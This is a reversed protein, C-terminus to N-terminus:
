VPPWLLQTSSESNSESYGQEPQVFIDVHNFFVLYYSTVRRINVQGKNKEKEEHVQQGLICLQNCIVYVYCTLFVCFM